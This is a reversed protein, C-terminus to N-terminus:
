NRDTVRIVGWCVEYQFSRLTSKLELQETQLQYNEKLKRVQGEFAPIMKVKNTVRYKNLAEEKTALTRNFYRRVSEIQFAVRDHNENDRQKREAEFDLDLAAECRGIATKIESRDIESEAELWDEGDLRCANLFGWSKERDYLEGTELCVLRVPLDEETKIGSFEWRNCRFAYVGAQFESTSKISLATQDYFPTEIQKSELEQGIFRILPHFQSIVEQRSKLDRVKNAFKCRIEQASALQTQGFLKNQAIFEGLEAATRASLKMRFNLDTASLQTFVFEGCFKDLYDKVYAVLDQDTIRKKFKHAADVKELIYDGHAILHSAQSELEEQELKINEIAIATKEIREREEQPTLETTLLDATLSRVEEGLIAEMGGLAREFIKLREYLRNHIKHDITGELLINVINIKDATQGLRDIRGIRQEVKMPNWPLDYNILVRSFQLDVGESAVESSLLVNVNNDLRFREIVEDKPTSMGGMLVIASVSDEALRKQLYTLTKRFYSFVILKERPNKRVFEVVAHRFAEYKSDNAYLEGLDIQPLVNRRLRDILPSGGTSPDDTGLDEYLQEDLEEEQAGYRNAWAHAAAYMCSSMQRQPSALLFGDSLDHEMAYSRITKTVLHYFRLEIGDEPLSVYHVQPDRIVRMEQVESKRTRTLSHRLLNVKDLHKALRVREGHSGCADHV